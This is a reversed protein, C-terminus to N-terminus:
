VFDAFNGGLRIRVSRQNTLKAQRGGTDFDRLHTTDDTSMSAINAELTDDRTALIESRSKVAARRNRFARNRIWDERAMHKVTQYVLGALENYDVVGDGDDDAAAIIGSIQKPTLRLEGAADRLVSLIEDDDLGGSGDVDAEAFKERLFAEVRAPSMGRLVTLASKERALDNIAEVRRRQLNLDLMGYIVDAAKPTPAEQRVARTRQGPERRVGGRRLRDARPVLVTGGGGRSVESVGQDRARTTQGHGERGRRQVGRPATEDVGDESKLAESEMRKNKVKREVLVEFCMPVFEEYEVVGDGNLDSEALLLNMEKKSLGLDANQLAALFESPDLVGNGDADASDFAARLTADLEERTMGKVFMMEMEERRVKAAADHLERAEMKSKIAGVLEHFIPVFEHYDVKGNGDVDAESIIERIEKKSLDLATSRLVDKFEWVDLAGNKDKDFETFVDLAFRAFEEPSMGRVDM